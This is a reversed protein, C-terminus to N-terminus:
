GAIVLPRPFRATAARFSSSGRATPVEIPWPRETMSEILPRDARGVFGCIGCM